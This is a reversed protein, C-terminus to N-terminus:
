RTAPCGFESAARRSTQAAMTERGTEHYLRAMNRSAQCFDDRVAPCHADLTAACGKPDLQQYVAALGQAFKPYDPDAIRGEMLRIVAQRPDGMGRAADAMALFYVPALQRGRGRDFAEIARRFDALRM